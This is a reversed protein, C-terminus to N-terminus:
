KGRRKKGPPLAISLRLATLIAFILSVMARYTFFCHLYSHNNLALYRVLVVGGLGLLMWVPARSIMKRQFLYWVSLLLLLTISLALFSRAYDLRGEGGFLMTLNAFPAAVFSDASAAVGEVSGGVREEVSALALAFTNEGSVIGALTWKVLFAGVYACGWGVACKVLLAAHERPNDLRKELARLATVCALPLLVTVTETTLFDFFAVATGGIVSLGILWRDGKRELLLYLPLLLFALIFAPQYEMSLRLNWARVAALSLLLLLALDGRKRFLLVGASLLVLLLFVTFGIAKIGDVDTFLSLLRIMMATGHWYRTYDTNPAAGQAVTQYLGISEGLEGGDYYQTQLVAKLPEGRGMNWAVNLWIADAYHDAISNWQGEKTFEFADRSAYSRASEEMHHAIASNPIMATLVLAGWLLCLVAGFLAIYKAISRM